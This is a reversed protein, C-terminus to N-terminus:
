LYKFKFIKRYKSDLIKLETVEALGWVAQKFVIRDVKRNLENKCQLKICAKIIDAYDNGQRTIKGSVYYTHAVVTAWPESM